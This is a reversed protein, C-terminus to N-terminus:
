AWRAAGEEDLRAPGTASPLRSSPQGVMSPAPPKEGPRSSDPVGSLWVNRLVNASAGCAVAAVEDGVEARSKGGPRDAGAWVRTGAMTGTSVLRGRGVSSPAFSLWTSTPPRLFRELSPPSSTSVASSSTPPGATREAKALVPPTPCPFPLPLSSALDADGTPPPSTCGSRATAPSPDMLSGASMTFREAGTVAVAPTRDGPPRPLLRLRVRPPM